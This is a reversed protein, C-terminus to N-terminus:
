QTRRLTVHPKSIYLPASENYDQRSNISNKTDANMYKNLVAESYKLVDNADVAAPDDLIAVDSNHSYM